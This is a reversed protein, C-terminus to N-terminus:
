KGHYGSGYRFHFQRFWGSRRIRKLDYISIACRCQGFTSRKSFAGYQCISCHPRVKRLLAM